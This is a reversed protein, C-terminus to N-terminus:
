FFKLQLFFNYVVSTGRWILLVFPQDRKGEGFVFSDWQGLSGAGLFFFFLYFSVKLSGTSFFCFLFLSFFTLSRDCGGGGGGWFFSYFSGVSFFLGYFFFGSGLAGVFLRLRECDENETREKV